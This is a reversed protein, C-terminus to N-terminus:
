IVHDCSGSEFLFWYCVPNSITIKGGSRIGTSNSEEQLYSELSGSTASSDLSSFQDERLVPYSHPDASEDDLEIAQYLKVQKGKLPLEENRYKEQQLEVNEPEAVDVPQFKADRDPVGAFYLRQNTSALRFTEHHNNVDPFSCVPNPGKVYEECAESHLNCFESPPPMIKEGFSSEM